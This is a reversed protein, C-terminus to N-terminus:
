NRTRDRHTQSARGTQVARKIPTPKCQQKERPLTAGSTAVANAFGSEAPAPRLRASARTAGRRSGGLAGTATNTQFEHGQTSTYQARHVQSHLTRRPIDAHCGGRCLLAAAWSTQACEGEDAAPAGQAFLELSLVPLFEITSDWM